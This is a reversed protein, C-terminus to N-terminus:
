REIQGSATENLAVIHPLNRYREAFDLGYGVVFKDPIEFGVYEVRVTTARRAKKDLLACIRLSAPQRTELNERIYALTLGTDVIDEVILVDRGQINMNLDSLIRVVGSSHTAKGYSSVAMFDIEHDIDIARMLDALFLVGGRLVTVLIPVKGAYDRSIEAGLEHVRKQIQDGSILITGLSSFRENLATAHLNPM